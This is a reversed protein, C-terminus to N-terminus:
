LSSPEVVTIANTGALSLGADYVEQFSVDQLTLVPVPLSGSALPVWTAEITAVAGPHGALTVGGFRRGLPRWADSEALVEFAIRSAPVAAPADQAAGSGDSGESGGAAAAAPPGSRELRWCLTTPQGLTAVFPGLLRVLVLAGDTSGEPSPMELTLRHRFCCHQTTGGAGDGAAESGGATSTPSGGGAGSSGAAAAAAAAGKRPSASESGGLLDLADAAPTQELGRAAAVSPSGGNATGRGAAGVPGLPAAAVGCQQRSDVSFEVVLASPALKAPLPAHEPGPAADPSLLYATTLSGFPPLTTPLLGLGDLLNTAVTFGPQPQLALKSLRAPVAMNSTLTCQLAVSGGPLARAASAVAFPQRVAAGLVRSHSRQCGSAYELSAPLDLVAPPLASPDAPQALRRHDVQRASQSPAAPQIHVEEPVAQVEGATVRWWLCIPQGAEVLPLALQQQMTGDLLWAAAPGTPGDAQLLQPPQPTGQGGESGAPGAGLLVASRHEPRVYSHQGTQLNAVSSGLPSLRMEGGHSQVSRHHPVLGSAKRPVPPPLGAPAGAAAPALPWSLELRAGHLADREPALELGLWQEQGAILSGGAALLSLEVRPQAPGVTMLVAEAQPGSASDDDGGAALQAGGAWSDSGGARSGRRGSGAAAKSSSSPQGAPWMPRPPRVTVVFPLQDLRARLSLAKYLGRKVPAALFTLLSRGPPLEVRGSVPQLSPPLGSGSGSGGGATGGGGGSSSSCPSVAVLSCSLEEVLQWQSEYREQAVTSDATELALSLAGVQFSSGLQAKSAAGPSGQLGARADALSALPSAARPSHIVTMEQLVGLTLAVDRLPLAVPLDSHVEIQLALADGVAAAHAGGPAGPPPLMLPSGEATTRGYFRSVAAKAPAAWIPASLDVAKDAAAAAGPQSGPVPASQVSSGLGGDPLAAAQLLLQCAAQRQSDGGRFPAPLSLLAAATQALGAGGAALQCAALKPLTAAALAHWGERLFTRCQRGYLQAARELQGAKVLADAVDARLLAANRLHGCQSYCKAAAESLEIFLETFLQQSSLAARLRWHVLWVPLNTATAAAAAATDPAPPLAAARATARGGREGLLSMVQREIACVDSQTDSRPTVHPSAAVAHGADPVGGHAAFSQHTSTSHPSSSLSDNGGGASKRNLSLRQLQDAAAGAAGEAQGEASSELGVAAAAQEETPQQAGPQQAQQAQQAQQSSGLDVQAMDSCSPAPAMQAPAEAAPARQPTAAVAAAAPAAAPAVAAHHHPEAGLGAPTASKPVDLGVAAGLRLLEFRATCYLKGLLCYLAASGPPAAVGERGPGGRGGAAGEAAATAAAAAASRSPLVGIQWDVQPPMGVSAFSPSSVPEAESSAPGVKVQLSTHAGPPAPSLSRGAAAAESGALESGRPPKRASRGGAHDTRRKEEARAAQQRSTAAALSVCSAFAWAERLLPPLAGAKQQQALSGGFSQVFKLGRDAVEAHRHLKLLLRAQSAFLAQRMAWEPPADPLAAASRAASWPAWLAAAEDEVAPKSGFARRPQHPLQLSDLYAAELESYERLADELLGASELMAALGDKVLFLTPFSWSPDLRNAMLRRVEETYAAARAEFAARIADKLQREYEELGLLAPAAPDNSQPAPDLRVCRERRRNLDRRMSDFVKAPGKGAADAAAPRVYVFLLEPQGPAASETDAMARLRLRLHQKYDEYELCSVIVVHAFPCRFWAAPSHSLQRLRSLAPDRADLYRIPLEEVAVAARSLSFLANRLPTRAEIAQKVRGGWLGSGLDDVQVALPEPADTAM